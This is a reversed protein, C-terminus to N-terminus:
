MFELVDLVREQCMYARLKLTTLAVQPENVWSAKMHIALALHNNPQRTLSSLVASYTPSLGGGKNM